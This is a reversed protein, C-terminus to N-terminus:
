FDELADKMLQQHHAGQHLNVTGTPDLSEGTDLEKTETAKGGEAM